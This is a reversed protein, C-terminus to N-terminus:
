DFKIIKTHNKHKQAIKSSKPIIKTHNKNYASRAARRASFQLSIPKPDNQSTVQQAQVHAFSLQRNWREVGNIILIQICFKNFLTKRGM